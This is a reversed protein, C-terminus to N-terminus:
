IQYEILIIKMPDAWQSGGLAEVGKKDIIKIVHIFEFNLFLLCLCRDVIM